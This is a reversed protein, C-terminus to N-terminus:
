KVKNKSRKDRLKKIKFIHIPVYDKHINIIYNFEIM